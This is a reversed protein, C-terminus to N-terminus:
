EDSEGAASADRARETAQEILGLLDNFQGVSRRLADIQLTYRREKGQRRVTVLSAQRLQQLHHSVTSPTLDFNSAIETVSFSRMEGAGPTCLFQLIQQRTEDAMARLMDIDYVLKPSRLRARRQTM